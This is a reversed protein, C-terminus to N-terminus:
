EAAHRRAVSRGFGGGGPTELVFVDGPRMITADTGTM